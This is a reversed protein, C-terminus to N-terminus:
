NTDTRQDDIEREMLEARRKAPELIRQAEVFAEKLPVLREELSAMEDAVARQEAADPDQQEPDVAQDAMANNQEVLEKVRQEAEEIQAVGRKAAEDLDPVPTPQIGYNRDDAPFLLDTLRAEWALTKPRTLNVFVKSRESDNALAGQVGAEYIGHFQRLDEMWRSEINVRASM